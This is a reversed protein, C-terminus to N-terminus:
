NKRGGPPEPLVIALRRTAMADRDTVHFELGLPGDGIQSDESALRGKLLWKVNSPGVDNVPPREEVADIVHQVSTPKGVVPRKDLFELPCNCAPDTHPVNHSDAVRRDAQFDSRTGEVQTALHQHWSEGEDGAGVRKVPDAQSWDEAVNIGAAQGNIRGIGSPADSGQGRAQETDVDVASGAIGVTELADRVVVPKHDKVVGGM